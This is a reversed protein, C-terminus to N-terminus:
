NHIKVQYKTKSIWKEKLDICWKNLLKKKMQLSKLLAIIMMMSNSRKLNKELGQIHKAQNFHM